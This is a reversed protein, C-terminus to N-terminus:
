PEVASVRWGGAGPCLVVVVGPGAPEVPAVAAAAVLRVRRAGDCGPRGPRAEERAASAVRLVVDPPERGTVAGWRVAPALWARADARAAPSGPVTVTALAVRDAAVLATARVRTLHVAALVPDAPTRTAARDAVAAPGGPSAGAASGGGGLIGVAVAAGLVILGIAAAVPAGGWRRSPRPRRVTTLPDVGQRRLGAEALTGPSPLAAPAAPHAALLRRALDVATPRRAPDRDLGAGLATLVAPDGDRGLLRVGTAALAYVDAAPTARGPREPAAYGPTGAEEVDGVLDVLVPAGDPRLVVNGPSVDGHVLGAGHLVGLAEAVAGVLTVVEGAPLRGRAATVTALDAGPVERCLVARGGAYRVVAALEMLGPHRLRGLVALRRSTPDSPGEAPPLLTVTYRAEDPGVAGWRPGSGGIGVPGAPRVGHAILVTILEDPLRM